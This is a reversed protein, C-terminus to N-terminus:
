TLMFLIRVAFLWLLALAFVLQIRKVRPEELILLGLWSLIFILLNVTTSNYGRAVAIPVVVAAWPEVFPM